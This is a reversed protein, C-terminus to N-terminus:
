GVAVGREGGDLLLVEEALGGVGLGLRIAHPMGEGLVLVAHEPPVHENGGPIRRYPSLLVGALRDEVGHLALLDVGGGTRAHDHTEEAAPVICRGVQVAAL